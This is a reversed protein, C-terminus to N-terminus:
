NAPGADVKKRANFLLYDADFQRTFTWYFVFLQHGTQLLVRRGDIQLMERTPLMLLVEDENNVMDPGIDKISRPSFNM